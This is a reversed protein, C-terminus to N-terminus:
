IKRELKEVLEAWAQTKYTAMLNSPISTSHEPYMAGRLAQSKIESIIQEMTVEDNLLWSLVTGYVDVKAATTFTHDSWRLAYSPDKQFSEVFKNLNERAYKLSTELDEILRQKM